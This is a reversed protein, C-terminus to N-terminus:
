CIKDEIHKYYEKKTALLLYKEEGEIWEKIQNLKEIAITDEVRLLRMGADIIFKSTREDKTYRASSEFFHQKDDLEIAIKQGDKEMLIDVRSHEDERVVAERQIRWEPFVGRLVSFFTSEHTKIKLQCFCTDMFNRIDYERDCKKCEITIDNKIRYSSEELKKGQLKQSKCTFCVPKTKKSKYQSLTQLRSKFLHGHECEVDIEMAREKSSFGTVDTIFKMNFDNLFSELRTVLKSM